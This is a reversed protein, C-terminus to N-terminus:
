TCKTTEYKVFPKQSHFPFQVFAWFHITGKSRWSTRFIVNNPPWKTILTGVVYWNDYKIHNQKTLPKWISRTTLNVLDLGYYSWQGWCSYFIPHMRTLKTYQIRLLWVENQTKDNFPRPNIIKVLNTNEFKQHMTQWWGLHSKTDIPSFYSFVTSFTVFIEELLRITEFEQHKEFSFCPVQWL